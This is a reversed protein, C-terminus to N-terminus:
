RRPTAPPVFRFPTADPGLTRTPPPQYFIGRRITQAGTDTGVVLAAMIALVVLGFVAWHM